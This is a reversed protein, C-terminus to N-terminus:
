GEGGVFCPVKDGIQSSHLDNARHPLKFELPICGPVDLLALSTEYGTAVLLLGIPVGYKGGGDAVGRETNDESNCADIVPFDLLHVHDRSEQIGVDVIFNVHILWLSIDGVAIFALSSDVM